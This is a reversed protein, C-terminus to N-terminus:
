NADQTEKASGFENSLELQVFLLDALCLVLRAAAIPLNDIKYSAM